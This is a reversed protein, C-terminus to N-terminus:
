KNNHGNQEFKPLLLMIQYELIYGNQKRNTTYEVFNLSTLLDRLNQLCRNAVTLKNDRFLKLHPHTRLGDWNNSIIDQIPNNRPNYTQIVVVKKESQTTTSSDKQPFFIIKIM